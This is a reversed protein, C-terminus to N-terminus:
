KALSPEGFGLIRWGYGILSQENIVWLLLRLSRLKRRGGKCTYRIRAAHGWPAMGLGLRCGKNKVDPRLLDYWVRM